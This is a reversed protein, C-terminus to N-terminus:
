MKSDYIGRELTSNKRNGRHGSSSEPDIIRYCLSVSVICVGDSRSVGRLLPITSLANDSM